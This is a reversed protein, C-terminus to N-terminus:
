EGWLSGRRRVDSSLRQTGVVEELKVEAVLVSTSMDSGFRKHTFKLSTLVGTMRIVRPWVFMVRPPAKWGGFPTREPYALSQLFKKKDLLDFSGASGAAATAGTGAVAGVPGLAGLAAGGAEVGQGGEGASIASLYIVLPISNNGTGVYHLIQYGLGPVAHRAYNVGITETIVEPNFQFVFREGSELNSLVAKEPEPINLAM